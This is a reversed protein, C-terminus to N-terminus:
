DVVFDLQGRHLLRCRRGPDGLRARRWGWVGLVAGVAELLLTLALGREVLPIPRDGLGWGMAPWWLTDGDNWAGSFVLYMLAGIPVGLLRRRVPRRGTTGLMVFTVLVVSFALTHMIWKGGTVSDLMPLVSGVSLWRYDFGPDRFVLWVAAVSTAM